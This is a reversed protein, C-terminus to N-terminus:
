NLEEIKFKNSSWFVSLICFNQKGDTQQGPSANSVEKRPTPWEVTECWAESAHCHVHQVIICRNWINKVGVVIFSLAEAVFPNFNSKSVIPVLWINPDQNLIIVQPSWKDQNLCQPEPSTKSFGIPVSVIVWFRLHNTIITVARPRFKSKRM